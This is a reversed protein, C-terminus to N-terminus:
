KRKMLGMRRMLFLVLKRQERARERERERVAAITKDTKNRKMVQYGEKENLEEENQVLMESKALIKKIKRLLFNNIIFKASDPTRSLSEDLLRFTYSKAHHM